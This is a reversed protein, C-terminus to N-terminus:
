INKHPVKYKNHYNILGEEVYCLFSIRKDIRQKKVVQLRANGFYREWWVTNQQAIMLSLGDYKTGKLYKDETTSCSYSTEVWVHGVGVRKLETLAKPIDPQPIHDLVHTCIILDFQDDPYPLEQIRGQKLPIDIKVKNLAVQSIDVGHCQVHPRTHKIWKLLQGSGCGIDLVSNFTLPQIIQTYEFIRLPSVGYDPCQTHVFDFLEQYDVPPTNRNSRRNRLSM